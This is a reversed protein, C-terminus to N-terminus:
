RRVRRNERGYHTEVRFQEENFIRSHSSILMKGKLKYYIIQLDKGINRLENILKYTNCSIISPKHDFGSKIEYVEIDKVSKDNLELERLYDFYVKEAKYVPKEDIELHIVDIASWYSVLLQKLQNSLRSMSFGHCMCLHGLNQYDSCRYVFFDHHKRKLMSVAFPEFVDAMYRTSKDADYNDIFIM